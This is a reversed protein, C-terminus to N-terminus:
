MALLSMLVTYIGDKYETIYDGEYRAALEALIRSGYGRGPATKKPIESPNRAKIILYDGDSQSSLSIVSKDANNARRCAAIANDLINCFISCLHMPEVAIANPLRLDVSLSIGAVECDKHKESLVANIVPINCYLNEKAKGIRNAIANISERANSGDCSYVRRELDDLKESMDARIEDLENMHELVASFHSKELEMRHQIDRLEELAATKKEQSITYALLLIIATLGLLLGALWYTSWQRFSFSEMIFILSIPMTLSMCVFYPIKRTSVIRWVIVGVTFAILALLAIYLTTIAIQM